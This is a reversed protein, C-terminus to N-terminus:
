VTDMLRSDNEMYFETCALSIIYELGGGDDLDELM